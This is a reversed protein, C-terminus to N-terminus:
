KRGLVLLIGLHVLSVLLYLWVISACLKLIADVLSLLAMELGDLKTWQKIKGEDLPGESVANPKGFNKEPCKAAKLLREFLADPEEMNRALCKAADGKLELSGYGETCHIPHLVYKGLGLVGSGAVMRFELRYVAVAGLAAMAVGKQAGHLYCSLGAAWRPTLFRLDSLLAYPDEAAEVMEALVAMLKTARLTNRCRRKHYTVATGLCTVKHDKAENYAHLARLMFATKHDIHFPNPLYLHIEKAPQLVPVYIAVM